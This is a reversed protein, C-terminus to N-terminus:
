MQNGETSKLTESCPHGHGSVLADGCCRSCGLVGFHPDLFVWFWRLLLLASLLHWELSMLKFFLNFIGM